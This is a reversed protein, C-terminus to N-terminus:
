QIQEPYKLIFCEMYHQQFGIGHFGKSNNSKRKLAFCLIKLCLLLVAGASSESVIGIIYGKHKNSSTINMSVPGNTSNEETEETVVPSLGALNRSSDNLKFIELGNLIANYRESPPRTKNNPHLEVWLDTTASKDAPVSILYDRYIPINPGSAEVIVDFAEEASQNNIYIDFKRQNSLTFQLECFHLRVLYSVNADITSFVWSLNFNLNILPEPLMSRFTAYVGSPAFDDAQQIETSNTGTRGMAAGFIFKSDEVWTRGYKDDSPSITHGGVNLIYLKQLATNLSINYGISQPNSTPLIVPNGFLQDPISQLEYFHLRVLYSNFRSLTHAQTTEFIPITRSAPTAQGTAGSGSM